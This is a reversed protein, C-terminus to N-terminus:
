ENRKNIEVLELKGLPLRTILKAKSIVVQSPSMKELHYVYLKALKFKVAKFYLSNVDFKPKIVCKTAGFHLLPRKLKSYIDEELLLQILKANMEKEEPEQNIARASAKIM